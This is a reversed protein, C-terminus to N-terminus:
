GDKFLRPVVVNEKIVFAGGAIRRPLGDAGVEVRGVLFRLDYDFVLGLGPDYWYKQAKLYKGRGIPLSARVEYVTKTVTKDAYMGRDDLVDQRLNPVYARGVSSLHAEVDFTFCRQEQGPTSNQRRNLACDVAGEQMAQRFSDAVVKKKMALNYILEDATAKGSPQTVLYRYVRVNREEMPLDKHSCNRVARGIAQEVLTEHWYPELIHVQRVNALTIGATSKKSLLIVRIDKGYRNGPANFTARVAENRVATEGFDAYRRHDNGAVTGGYRSYGFFDLYMRFVELGEMRVFQSYVMATGPSTAILLLVRVMKPSAAAMADLLRCRGPSGLFDDLAPNKQFRDVEEALTHGSKADARALGTWHARVAALIRAQAAAYAKNAATRAAADGMRDQLVKSAGFSSRRPRAMGNVADSLNPIVFNAALRTYTRFTGNKMSGADGTGVMEFISSRGQRGQTQLRRDREEEQAELMKYVQLGYGQLEARVQVTEQAAYKDATHGRFYSVKGMTRRMFLNKASDTLVGGRFFLNSFEDHTAPFLGPELLNFLVAMEFPDQVVPTASLLVIRTHEDRRRALVMEDYIRRARGTENRMNSLVTMIFEHAEDVIFISKRRPDRTERLTREFQESANSANYSVFHINARREAARDRLLCTGLDKEWPDNRLGAKILLYVNWLPTANFLENYINIAGCTKGSGLGHYLLITRFPSHYSMYAAIFQQQRFFEQQKPDDVEAKGAKKNKGRSPRCPDEGPVVAIDPLQYRSFNQTVWTPFLTGSYDTPVVYRSREVSDASSYGRKNLTDVRRSNM